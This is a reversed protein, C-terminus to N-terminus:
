YVIYSIMQPIEVSPWPTELLTVAPTTFNPHFDGNEQIDTAARYWCVLLSLM